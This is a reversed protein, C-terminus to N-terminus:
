GGPPRMKLAKLLVGMLLIFTTISPCSGMMTRVLGMAKTERHLVTDGSGRREDIDKFLELVIDAQCYWAMAVQGLPRFISDEEQIGRERNPRSLRHAMCFDAPCLKGVRHDPLNRLLSFVHHEHEPPFKCLVLSYQDIFFLVHDEFSGVRRGKRRIRTEQTAFM